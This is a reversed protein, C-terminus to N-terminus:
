KESPAIQLPTLGSAAGTFTKEEAAAARKQRRREKFERIREFSRFEGKGLRYGVGFTLYINDLPSRLPTLAFPNVSPDDSANDYYKNRNRLIDGYGFYYRASVNFEFRGSLYAVSGGGALGYNWRNDRSLKFPYTGSASTLDNTYTSSINYSFTVALDISVRVRFDALYFHPSWVVPMVISNIRRTYYKDPEQSNPMYSYGRQMFELEAGVSGVYRQATYYRWTLGGTIGGWISKTEQKPYFRATSSGYGGKVGLVHQASAPLVATAALLLLCIKKMKM